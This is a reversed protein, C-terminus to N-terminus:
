MLTNKLVANRPAKEIGVIGQWSTLPPVNRQEINADSEYADAIHGSKILIIFILQCRIFIWNVINILYWNYVKFIIKRYKNEANGRIILRKIQL